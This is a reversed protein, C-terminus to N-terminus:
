DLKFRTEQLTWKLIKMCDGLAVWVEIRNKEGGFFFRKM